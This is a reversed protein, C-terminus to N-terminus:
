FSAVRSAGHGFVTNRYQVLADFLELASCSKANTPQSDLGNKIRRFLALVGDWERRKTSLQEWLHGLPHSAADVRNGFHGIRTSWGDADTGDGFAAKWADHDVRQARLLHERLYDEEKRVDLIVFHKTVDPKALEAPEALLDSRPYSQEGGPTV